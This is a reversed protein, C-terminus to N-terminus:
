RWPNFIIKKMSEAGIDMQDETINLTDYTNSTQKLLINVARNANEDTFRMENIRQSVEIMINVFISGFEDYTDILTDDDMKKIDINNLDIM